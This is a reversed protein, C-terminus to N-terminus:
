HDTRPVGRVSPPPASPPPCCDDAGRCEYSQDCLKPARRCPQIQRRGAPSRGHAALAACLHHQRLAEQLLRHIIDLRADLGQDCGAANAGLHPSGQRQHMSVLSRSAALQQAEGPTRATWSQLQTFLFGSRGIHQCAALPAIPRLPIQPSCCPHPLSCAQRCRRGTNCGCHTKLAPSGSQFGAASM